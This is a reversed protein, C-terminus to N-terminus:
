IHILSLGNVPDRQRFMLAREVAQLASSSVLDGEYGIPIKFQGIDGYLPSTKSQNLLYSLQIEQLISSSQNVSPTTGSNLRLGKAPDIMVTGTLRPTINGTLRLEGRRLRFTENQSAGDNQPFGLYHVQLLGSLTVPLRSGVPSPAKAAADTAKKQDGELKDLRETLAAIQARLAEVETQQAQSPAANGLLLAATITALGLAAANRPYKVRVQTSQKM